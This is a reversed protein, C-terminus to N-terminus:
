SENWWVRRPPAPAAEELASGGAEASASDPDSLDPDAGVFELPGRAALRAVWRDAAAQDKLGWALRQSGRYVDFVVDGFDNLPRAVIRWPPERRAM